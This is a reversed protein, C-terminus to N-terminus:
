RCHDLRILPHISFLLIKGLRTAILFGVSHPAAVLLRRPHSAPFCLDGSNLHDWTPGRPSLLVIVPDVRLIWRTVALRNLFYGALGIATQDVWGAIKEVKEIMAGAVSELAALM